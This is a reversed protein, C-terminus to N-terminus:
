WDHARDGGSFDEDDDASGDQVGLPIRDAEIDSNRWDPRQSSVGLRSQEAQLADRRRRREAIPEAEGGALRHAVYYGIASAICADDHQSPAAEAQGLTGGTPIILHRLENRTTPSNIRFDAQGSVPDIQTISEVFTSLLIPRTQLTTYWGIRTSFRRDPDRANTYEWTYFYTYGLHLQLTDQTSLGPGMNCEIAAMAEVGEEDKYLRGIADIIWALQTPSVQNSVYQAVEEAPEEITPQRVVSVVSSDGGLGYAVDVGLIYRRPGRSRPYEYIAM